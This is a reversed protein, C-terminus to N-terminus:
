VSTGIVLDTTGIQLTKTKRQFLFPALVGTNSVNIYGMNCQGHSFAPTYSLCDQNQNFCMMARFAIFNEQVFNNSRLYISINTRATDFLLNLTVM